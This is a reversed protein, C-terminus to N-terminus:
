PRKEGQAQLVGQVPNRPLAIEWEQMAHAIVRQLLGMERVVTAKCVGVVKLREVRYRAIDIPPLNAMAMEAFKRRAM